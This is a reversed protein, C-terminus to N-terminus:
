SALAGSRVDFRPRTTPAALSPDASDVGSRPRRRTATRASAANTNTIAEVVAQSILSGAEDRTGAAV